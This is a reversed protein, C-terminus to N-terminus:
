KEPKSKVWSGREMDRKGIEYEKGGGKYWGLSRWEGERSARRHQMEYIKRAISCALPVVHFFASYRTSPTSYFNHHSGSHHLM